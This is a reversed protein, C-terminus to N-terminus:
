ELRLVARTVKVGHGACVGRVHADREPAIKMSTIVVEAVQHERLIADLRDVGGLVALGQVETRQKERDDDLFGIPTRALAPNSRLERLLLVGGDGAGYILVRTGNTPQPRLLETLTRFSLRSGCAFVLLLLWDLVFLARSYYRFRYLFLIALVSLGSGLTVAQIIRLLDRLSAYRWVGQYVRMVAFAAMKCAIVIPLSEVFLPEELSFTGEFRLRYASYYAFVIFLADLAVIGVQRKYTFDALLSFVRGNQSVGNQSVGNQSVSNQDAGVRVHGLVLGLLLVCTGFLVIGVTAEALGFRSTYIAIVGSILAVAYLLAVAQRESLGTAVLRHSTHDRGGQSVPRGALTRAVTVFATDFLPVLAVLVPVLMVSITGRSSQSPGLLSFGGVLFGLLLSGADGMFISAPNFNHVLFGLTAGLIVAAWTAAGPTEGMLFFVLTVGAAIAAIGAALGDMNDLLNFANTLAVFWFITIVIDIWVITTLPLRLGTATVAAAAVLQAIIKTQPRLPRVDDVLGVLALALAAWMLTWITSDTVGAIWTGATIAIAIAVGGLMPITDRHWRDDKPRAVIGLRTAVRKCLATLVLALTFSAILPILVISM